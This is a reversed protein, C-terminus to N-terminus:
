LGTVDLNDRLMLRFSQRAWQNQFRMSGTLFGEAILINEKKERSQPLINMVTGEYERTQIKLLPVVHWYQDLIGDGERLTNAPVVSGDAAVIAHNSSVELRRGNEGELILLKENLSGTTIEEIPQEAYSMQEPTADLTLATVTAAKSQYAREISMLSGEFSLQQSPTYCDRACVGAVPGSLSCQASPSFFEILPMSSHSPDAFIVYKGQRSLDDAYAQTIKNCRAAYNNQARVKDMTVEGAQMFSCGNMAAGEDDAYALSAVSVAFSSVVATILFKRM